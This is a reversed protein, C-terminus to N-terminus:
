LLYPLSFCEHISEDLLRQAGDGGASKRQAKGGAAASGRGRAGCARANGGDGDPTIAALLHAFRQLGNGVCVVCVGGIIGFGPHLDLEDDGAGALLAQGVAKGSGILCALGVGIKVDNGQVVAPDGGNQGLRAFIKEDGDVGRLDGVIFIDYELVIDYAIGEDGVAACGHHQGVIRFGHFIRRCRRVLQILPDLVIGATEGVAVRGGAAGAIGKYRGGDVVLQGVFCAHGRVGFPLGFVGGLPVVGEGQHGLQM